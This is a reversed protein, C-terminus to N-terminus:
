RAEEVRPREAVIRRPDLVEVPIEPRAEGPAPTMAIAERATEGAVEGEIAAQEGPTLKAGRLDAKQLNAGRLDAMWLDAESLDAGQLTAGQLKAGTLRAWALRAGTLDAGQLNAGRLDAGRLDAGPLNMGKRPAKDDRRLPSEAPSSVRGSPRVREQLPAVSNGEPRPPVPQPLAALPTTPASDGPEPSPVSLGPTGTGGQPMAPEAPPQPKASPAVTATFQPRSDSQDEAPIRQPVSVRLGFISSLVSSPFSFDAGAGAQVSGGSIGISEAAMSESPTPVLSGPQPSLLGAAVLEDDGPGRARSLLASLPEGGPDAMPAAPGPARVVTERALSWRKYTQATALYLLSSLLVSGLILVGVFVWRSWARREPGPVSIQNAPIANTREHQRMAVGKGPVAGSPVRTRDEPAKAAPQTLRSGATQQHVDDVYASLTKAVTEKLEVFELGTRYVIQGEGGTVPVVQAVSSRVARALVELELGQVPLFLRYVEGVRVGITHEVLAGSRSIELLEAARLHLQVPAREQILVRTGRRQIAYTDLSPPSAEAAPTEVKTPIGKSVQDNTAM